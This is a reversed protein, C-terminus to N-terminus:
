LKPSSRNASNSHRLSTRMAQLLSLFLALIIICLLYPIFILIVIPLALAMTAFIAGLMNDSPLAIGLAILHALVIIVKPHHEWETVILYFDQHM